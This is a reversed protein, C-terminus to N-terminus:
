VALLLAFAAPDPPLTKGPNMQLWVRVFFPHVGTPAKKNKTVRELKHKTAKHLKKSRMHSTKTSKKPNKECTHAAKTAKNQMKEGSTPTVEVEVENATSTKVPLPATGPFTGDLKRVSAFHQGEKQYAIHLTRRVNGESEGPINTRVTHDYEPQYVKVEVCLAASFASVELNDAYTGLVSMKKLHDNWISDIDSPCAASFSANSSGRSRSRRKERKNDCGAFVFPKYDDPNDRMHQVTKARLTAHQDENGYLQDSAARFFCNGDGLTKSVSLGL